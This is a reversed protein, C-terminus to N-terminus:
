CFRYLFSHLTQLCNRSFQCPSEVGLHSLLTRRLELPQGSSGKLWEPPMLRLAANLGDFLDSPGAFPIANNASLTNMVDPLQRRLVSIILTMADLYFCSFIESPVITCKSAINIAWKRLHLPEAILFIFLGPPLPAEPWGDVSEPLTHSLFYSTIKADTFVDWNAVMRYLTAAPLNSAPLLHSSSSATSESDEIEKLIESLEWRGFETFFQKLVSKGFAALYSGELKLM